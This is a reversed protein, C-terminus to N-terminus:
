AFHSALSLQSSFGDNATLVGLWRFSPELRRFLRKCGNVALLVADNEEVQDLTV